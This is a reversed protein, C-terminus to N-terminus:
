IVESKKSSQKKESYSKKSDSKKNSEKGNHVEMKNHDTDTNLFDVLQKHFSHHNVDVEEKVKGIVRDLIRDIHHMDGTQISILIARAIFKRVAPVDNSTDRNRNFKDVYDGDYIDKEKVIGIIEKLEDETCSWLDKFEQIIEAKAAKAFDRLTLPLPKKGAPNGSQGKVFDRGGTKKNKKPTKPIKEDM